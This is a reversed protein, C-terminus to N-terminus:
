GTASAVVHPKFAEIRQSLVDCDTLAAVLRPGPEAMQRLTQVPRSHHSARFKLPLCVSIYTARKPSSSTQTNSRCGLLPAFLLGQHNNKSVTDVLKFRQSPSTRTESQSTLQWYYFTALALPTQVRSARARVHSKTGVLSNTPNTHLLCLALKHGIKCGYSALAFERAFQCGVKQHHACRSV